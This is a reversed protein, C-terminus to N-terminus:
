TAPPKRTKGREELKPRFCAWQARQGGRVSLGGESPGDARSRLRAPGAAAIGRESGDPRARPFTGVGCRQDDGPARGCATPEKWWPPRAGKSVAGNTTVALVVKSPRMAMAIRDLHVETM